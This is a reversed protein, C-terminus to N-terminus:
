GISIGYQNRTTFGISVYIKVRFRCKTGLSIGYYEYKDDLHPNGFSDYIMKNLTYFTGCEYYADCVFSLM